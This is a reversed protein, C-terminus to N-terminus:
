AVESEEKAEERAINENIIDECARQYVADIEAILVRLEVPLSDAPTGIPDNFHIDAWRKWNRATNIDPAQEDIARDIEKFYGM